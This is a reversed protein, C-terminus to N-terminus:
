IPKIDRRGTILLLRLFGGGEGQSRLINLNMIVKVKQKIPTGKKPEQEKAKLVRNM